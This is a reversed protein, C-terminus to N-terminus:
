DDTKQPFREGSTIVGRHCGEYLLFSALNQTATSMIPKPNVEHAHIKREYKLFNSM